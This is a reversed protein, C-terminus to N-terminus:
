EKKKKKVELDIVPMVFGRGNNGRKVFEKCNNLGSLGALYVDRAVGRLGAKRANEIKMEESKNKRM